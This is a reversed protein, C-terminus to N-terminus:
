NHFTNHKYITTYIVYIGIFFIIIKLHYLFDNYSYKIIPKVVNPYGYKINTNYIEDLWGRNNIIKHKDTIKLYIYGKECKKCKNSTFVLDCSDINHSNLLKIYIENDDGEYLGVAIVSHHNIYNSTELSKSTLCIDDFDNSVDISILSPFTESFIEMLDNKKNLFKYMDFAVDLNDYSDTNIKNIDTITLPMIKTKDYQNYKTVDSVDSVDSVDTYDKYNFNDMIGFNKIYFLVCTPDGKESKENIRSLALKKCSVCLGNNHTCNFNVIFKNYNDIIQQNSFLINNHTLQMYKISLLNTAAYIWCTDYQQETIYPCINQGDKDYCIDILRTKLDFCCAVTILLLLRFMIKVDTNYCIM